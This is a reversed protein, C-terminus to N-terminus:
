QDLVERIKAAQEEFVRALKELDEDDCKDIARDVVKSIKTECYIDHMDLWPLVVVLYAEDGGLQIFSSKLAEDIASKCVMESVNEDVGVASAMGDIAQLMKEFNM